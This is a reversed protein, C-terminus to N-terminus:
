KLIYSENLFLNQVFKQLQHATVKKLAALRDFNEYEPFLNERLMQALQWNPQDQGIKQVTVLARKAKKLLDDDIKGEGIQAM